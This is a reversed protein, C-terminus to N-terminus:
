RPQPPVALNAQRRAGGLRCRLPLCTQLYGPQMEEDLFREVYDREEQSAAALEDAYRERAQAPTLGNRCSRSIRTLLVARRFRKLDHAAVEELLAPEVHWPMTGLLHERVVRDAAPNRASWTLLRLHHGSQAQLIGSWMSDWADSAARHREM